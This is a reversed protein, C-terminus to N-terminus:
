SLWPWMQVSYSILKPHCAPCQSAQHHSHLDWGDLVWCQIILLADSYEECKLFNGLHLFLKSTFSLEQHSILKVGLARPGPLVAVWAHHLMNHSFQMEPTQKEESFPCPPLTQKEEIEACCVSTSLWILISSVRLSPRQREAVASFKHLLFLVCSMEPPTLSLTLSHISPQPFISHSSLSAESMFVIFFFHLYVCSEIELTCNQEDLPYRRLDM